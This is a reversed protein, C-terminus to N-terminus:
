AEDQDYGAQARKPDPLDGGTAEQANNQQRVEKENVSAGEPRNADRAEGERPGTRPPEGPVSGPKLTVNRSDDPEYTGM